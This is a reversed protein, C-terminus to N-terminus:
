CKSQIKVNLLLVPILIPLIAVYLKHPYSCISFLAGDSSKPLCYLIKYYKSINGALFFNRQSKPVWKFKIISIFIIFFIMYSFYQVVPNPNKRTSYCKNKLHVDSFEPKLITNQFNIVLVKKFLYTNM